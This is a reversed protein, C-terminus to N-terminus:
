SHDKVFKDIDAATVFKGSKYRRVFERWAYGDRRKLLEVSLAERVKPPTRYNVRFTGAEVEDALKSIDHYDM